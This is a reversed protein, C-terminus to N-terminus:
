LPRSLYLEAGLAICPLALFIYTYNDSGEYISKILTLAIILICLLALMMSLKNVWHIITNYRREQFQLAFQGYEEILNVTPERLLQLSKALVQQYAEAHHFRLSLLRSTEQLITDINKQVMANNSHLECSTVADKLVNIRQTRTLAHERFLSNQNLLSIKYKKALLYLELPSLGLSPCQIFGLKRVNLHINALKLAFNVGHACNHALACFNQPNNFESRVFDFCFKKFSIASRLVVFSDNDCDLHLSSYPELGTSQSTHHIKVCGTGEYFEENEEASVILRTTLGLAFNGLYLYLKIFM